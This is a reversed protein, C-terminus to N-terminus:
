IGWINTDNNIDLGLKQFFHFSITPFFTINIKHLILFTPRFHVDIYYVTSYLICTKAGKM